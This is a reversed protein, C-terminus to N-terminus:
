VNLSEIMRRQGSVSAPVTGRGRPGSTRGVIEFANRSYAFNLGTARCRGGPGFGRGLTGRAPCKTSPHRLLLSAITLHPSDLFETKHGHEEEESTDRQPRLLAHEQGIAQRNLNQSATIGEVDSRVPAPEDLLCGYPKRVPRTREDGRFTQNEGIMVDPQIARLFQAAFFRVDHFVTEIGCGPGLFLLTRVQLQINQLGDLIYGFLDHGRYGGLHARLLRIEGAAGRNVGELILFRAARPEFTFHDRQPVASLVVQVTIFSVRIDPQYEHGLQPNRAEATIRIVELKGAINQIHSKEAGVLVFLRDLRARKEAPPPRRNPFILQNEHGTM